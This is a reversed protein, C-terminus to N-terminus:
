TFQALAEKIKAQAEDLSTPSPKHDVHAFGFDTQHYAPFVHV